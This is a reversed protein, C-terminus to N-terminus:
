FSNLIDKSHVIIEVEFNKTTEFKLCLLAETWRWMPDFPQFQYTPCVAEDQKIRIM